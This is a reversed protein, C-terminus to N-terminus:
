IGGLEHGMNLVHAALLKLEEVPKRIDWYRTAFFRATNGDDGTVNMNYINHVCSDQRIDMRWLRGKLVTLIERPAYPTWKEKLHEAESKYRANAIPYLSKEIEDYDFTGAKLKDCIDRATLYSCADGAFAVADNGCVMIKRTASPATAKNNFYTMCTDSALVIGDSGVLGIQLTV